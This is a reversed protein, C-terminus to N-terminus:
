PTTNPLARDGKDLDIIRLCKRGDGSSMQFIELLHQDKEGAQRHLKSTFDGLIKSFFAFPLSFVYFGTM